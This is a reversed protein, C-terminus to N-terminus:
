SFLFVFIILLTCLFLFIKGNLPLFPFILSMKPRLTNNQRSAPLLLYERSFWIAYHTDHKTKLADFLAAHEKFNPSFVELANNVLPIQNANSEVKKEKMIKLKRPMKKKPSPATLSVKSVSNIERNVNTPKTWNEGDSKGGFFRRIEYDLRKSETYNISMPCMSQNISTENFSNRSSNTEESSPETWLLSRSHRVNPLPMHPSM